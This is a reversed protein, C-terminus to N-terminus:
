KKRRFEWPPVPDKDKWLGLGAARAKEELQKWEERISKRCYREYVWAFGARVIEENLVRGDELRILAVTRRYRDKNVPKVEVIKGFCLDSTFQKARTGFAQKKEPTDIGYLRIKVPTKKIPELVTITDGDSIGVVKGSWSFSPSPLLLLSWFLVLTFFLPIPLNPKRTRLPDM